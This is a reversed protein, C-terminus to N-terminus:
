RAKMFLLPEEGFKQSLAQLKKDPPNTEITPTTTGSSDAKVTWWHGASCAFLIDTGAVFVTINGGDDIHQGEMSKSAAM